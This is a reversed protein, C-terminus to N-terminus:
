RAVNSMSMAARQVKLAVIRHLERDQARFVVAAAGEGLRDLIEFRPIKPADPPHPMIRSSHYWGKISPSSGSRLGHNLRGGEVLPRLETALVDRQWRSPRRNLDPRGSWWLGRSTVWPLRYRRASRSGYSPPPSA